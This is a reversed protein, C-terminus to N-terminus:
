DTALDCHAKLWENYDSLHDLSANLFRQATLTLKKSIESTFKAQLAIIEETSKTKKLQEINKISVEFIENLVILNQEVYRKIFLNMKENNMTPLSGVLQTFTDWNEQFKQYAMEREKILM